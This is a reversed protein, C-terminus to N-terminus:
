VNVLQELTFQTLDPIEGPQGPAGGAPQTPAPAAGAQRRPRPPALDMSEMSGEAHGGSMVRFPPYGGDARCVPAGASLVACLVGVPPVFRLIARGSRVVEGPMRTM